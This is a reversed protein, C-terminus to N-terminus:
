RPKPPPVIRFPRDQVEAFDVLGAMTEGVQFMVSGAAPDGTLPLKFQRKAPETKGSISWVFAVVAEVDVGECKCTALATPVDDFVLKGRLDVPTDAVAGFVEHLATCSGSVANTIGGMRWSREDFPLQLALRLTAPVPPPVPVFDDAVSVVLAYTTGLPLAEAFGFLASVPARADAMLNFHGRWPRGSNEGIQVSIDVEESLRVRLAALDAFPTNDFHFSGDARIFLAIGEGLPAGRRSVPLQMGPLTLIEYPDVLGRAFLTRMAEVKADCETAPAPGAPACALVGALLLTVRVM